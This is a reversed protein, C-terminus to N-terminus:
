KEPLRLRRVRKRFEDRALRLRSYATNLPISLAEAVEPISFGDVEHMLFVARRDIEMAELARHAVGLAETDLVHELATPADDPRESAEDLVELRHSARRRHRAAIRFAFGFLWARLARTPDYRDRARYVEFFVDHAVDDLDRERIGLRRLTHWVYAFHQEFAARFEFPSVAEGLTKEGSDDPPERPPEQRAMANAPKVDHWQQSGRSETV